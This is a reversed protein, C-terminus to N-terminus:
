ACKFGYRLHDCQTVINEARQIEAPNQGRSYMSYLTCLCETGMAGVAGCCASDPYAGEMAPGCVALREAVCQAAVQDVAQMAVLVVLCLELLAVSSRKAAM